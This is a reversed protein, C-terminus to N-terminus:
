FDTFLLKRATGFPLCLPSQPLPADIFGRDRYFRRARDSLAHVLLAAVGAIEAARLTRGIAHKLLASGLGAGQYRRDIALRGLVVVPIPDPMNRRLGKPAEVHGVAGASLCYFGAVRRTECVMYTRSGGSQENALARRSLWLNLTPEGCDFNLCDIRDHIPTPKSFRSM